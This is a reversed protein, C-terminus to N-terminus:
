VNKKLYFKIKLVSIKRPPGSSVVYKLFTRRRKNEFEQHIIFNLRPYSSRILIASSTSATLPDSDTENVVLKHLQLLHRLLFASSSRCDITKEVIRKASLHELSRCIPSVHEDAFQLLHCLLAGNPQLVMEKVFPSLLAAKLGLVLAFQQDLQFPLKRLKLVKLNPCSSGLHTFFHICKSPTFWDIKLKLLNKFGAFSKAWLAEASRPLQPTEITFSIEKLSPCCKSVTEVVQLPYFNGENNFLPSPM